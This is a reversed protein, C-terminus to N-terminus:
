EQQEWLISDVAIALTRRDPAVSLWADGPGAVEMAMGPAAGKVGIIRAVGEVFEPDSRDFVKEMGVVDRYFAIAKEMDKVSMGVHDAKTFM